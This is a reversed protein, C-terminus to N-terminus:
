VNGVLRVIFSLDLISAGPMLTRLSIPFFGPYRHSFLTQRSTEYYLQSIKCRLSLAIQLGVPVAFSTYWAQRCRVAEKRVVRKKDDVAVSM